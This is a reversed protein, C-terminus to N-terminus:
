KPAIGLYPLAFSAIREFAPAAVEGGTHVGKPEDVMVAVLIRADRAPAFGIFSAVFHDQSYGGNEAKEATGTKGAIDYGAVAAEPATGTPGLVGELMGQLQHATRASIVRRGPSVASGDLVLRPKLLIGGNAIASYAAAMQIPTVALGQGIPLNGMSSGSYDKVGPVIGQSEGPLPVGTKRAFGFRRVWDDFRKPGVELGIRVAGVNSSQALIRSVSFVGGTGHAEKIVRDAVQIQPGVTFTTNPSVIDDQLAGAVTISKFTSGPEYTFGIARNARAWPPEEEVHNANVTPWNAMALIDGSRPNMVIATAGKPQFTSGVESLVAEARDQLASDITLQLNNGSREGQVQKLSVADGLADKVVRQEGDKGRLKDDLEHEIGALGNNDIGVTGLLQAALSGEPYYRREDDLLGVGEIKLKKIRRAKRIDLKRALYAFGSSRDALVKVLEEDPKGLLPAIRAAVRVPDRILYPTAYVTAADESVALTKGNRDTITGRKAPVLNNEVQQSAARQRLEGGKFALLYGARMTALGLLLLFVCFLLGIRREILRRPSTRTRRRRNGQAV